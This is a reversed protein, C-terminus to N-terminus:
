KITNNFVSWDEGDGDGDALVDVGDVCGCDDNKSIGAEIISFISTSLVFSTPANIWSEMLPMRFLLARNLSVLYEISRRTNEKNEKTIIKLM